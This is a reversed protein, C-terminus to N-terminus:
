YTGIDIMAMTSQQNMGDTAAVADGMLGYVQNGGAFTNTIASTGDLKYYLLPNMESVMKFWGHVGWVMFDGDNIETGILDGEIFTYPEAGMAVLGDVWWFDGFTSGTPDPYEGEPENVPDWIPNAPDAPNWPAIPRFSNFDLFAQNIKGQADLIIPSGIDDVPNSTTPSDIFETTAFAGVDGADLVVVGTEGNVSDVPAAATQNVWSRVGLATSSLVQGDTAPDGLDPEKGAITSDQTSNTSDIYAKNALDADDVPATPYQPNITFVWTGTPSGSGINLDGTMTGGAIPLAGVDTSDLVVVGTKTNVSTVPASPIPIWTRLGAMDSSLVDGNADPLGLDEEKDNVATWLATDDYSDQAAVIPRQPDTNDVTVNAGAQVEMLRLNLENQLGAVSAIDHGHHEWAAGVDDADIHVNGNSDPVVSNVSEVTGSGLEFIGGDNGKSYAKKNVVDIGLGGELLDSAIPATSGKKWLDQLTAM